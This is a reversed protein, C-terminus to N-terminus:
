YAAYQKGNWYLLHLRADILGSRSVHHSSFEIADFPHPYATPVDGGEPAWASGRKVLRLVVEQPSGIPVDDVRTLRRRDALVFRGNDHHFVALTPAGNGTADILLVAADLAQDGNFDGEIAFNAAQLSWPARMDRAMPLRLGACCSTVASVLGQRFHPAPGDNWAALAAGLNHLTDVEQLLPGQQIYIWRVRPAGAIGIRESGVVLQVVVSPGDAGPGPRHMGRAEVCIPLDRARDVAPDGTQEGCDNVEWVIPGPSELVRRFWQEFPSAPLAPDLFAASVRRAREITLDERNQVAAADGALVSVILASLVTPSRMIM